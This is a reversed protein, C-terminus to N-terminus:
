LFSPVSPRLVVGEERVRVTARDESAFNMTGLTVAPGLRRWEKEAGQKPWEGECELSQPKLGRGQSMKPRPGSNGQRKNGKPCTWNVPGRGGQGLM